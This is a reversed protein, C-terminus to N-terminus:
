INNHVEPPVSSIHSIGSLFFAQQAPDSVQPDPDAQIFSGKNYVADQPAQDQQGQDTHDHGLAVLASSDADQRQEKKQHRRCKFLIEPDPYRGQKFPGNIDENIGRLDQPLDVMVIDQDRAPISDEM